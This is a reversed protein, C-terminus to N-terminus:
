YLHAKVDCRRLTRRWTCKTESYCQGKVESRQCQFGRWCHGSVRQVNTALKLSFRWYRFLYRNRSILILPRGSSRFIYHRQRMNNAVSAYVFQVATLPGRARLVKHHSRRNTPREDTLGNTRKWNVGIAHSVIGRYMTPPDEHFKACINMM